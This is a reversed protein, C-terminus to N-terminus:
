PLLAGTGQTQLKSDHALNYGMVNCTVVITSPGCLGCCRAIQLAASFQDAHKRKNVAEM